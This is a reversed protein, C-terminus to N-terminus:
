RGIKEGSKAGQSRAPQRAECPRERWWEQYPKNLQTTIICSLGRIDLTKKARRLDNRLRKGRVCARKAKRQQLLGCTAEAAAPFRKRFSRFLPVIEKCEPAAQQVILKGFLRISSVHVHVNRLDCFVHVGTKRASETLTLNNLLLHLRANKTRPKPQASKIHEPARILDLVHM